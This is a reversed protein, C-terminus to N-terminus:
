NISFVDRVTKQGPQDEFVGGGVVVVGVALDAWFSVGCKKLNHEGVPDWVLLNPEQFRM